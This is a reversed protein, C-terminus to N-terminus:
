KLKNGCRFAEAVKQGVAHYGNMSPDYVIPKLLGMDIKGDVCVSEDAVVNVIKGIMIENEYSVFECELAVKLENIIPANVKDSKRYTFGSKEFKAPESNGSCIGVYDCAVVTDVTGYAVTFAGTELINAATKHAKDLSISIEAVDTISGWAANMADPRGEADFSGIILVPLPFVFPKPGLDVFNSM